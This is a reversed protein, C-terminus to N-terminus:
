SWVFYIEGSWVGYAMALLFLMVVFITTTLSVPQATRARKHAEDEARMRHLAEKQARATRAGGSQSAM